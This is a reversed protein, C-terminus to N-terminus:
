KSVDDFRPPSHYERLESGVQNPGLVQTQCPLGLSMNHVLKQTAIKLPQLFLYPTRIKESAGTAWAGTLKPGLRQKKTLYDWVWTTPRYWIQLQQLKLPQLFLYPDWIKKSAGQGVGGGIKTWFTTKPLSTEFSIQTDFKFNSAEVTAFIRLPDRM